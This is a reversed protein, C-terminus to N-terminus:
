EEIPESYYVMCSYVAHDHRTCVTQYQIDIIHFGIEMEKSIFSNISQELVKARDVTFIQVKKVYAM